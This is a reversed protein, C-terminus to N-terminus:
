KRCNHVFQRGDLLAFLISSDDIEHERVNLFADFRNVIACSVHRAATLDNRDVPEEAPVDAELLVQLGGQLDLGPQIPYDPNLAVWVAAAVIVAIVALWIWDRRQNTEM